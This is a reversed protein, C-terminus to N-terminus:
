FYDTYWIVSSFKECAIHLESLYLGMRLSEKPEDGPEEACM